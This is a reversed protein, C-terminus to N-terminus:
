NSGVFKFEVSQRKENFSDLNINYTIDWNGNNANYELQWYDNGYFEQNIQEWKGNVKRFLEPRKYNPVHTITIPVYGL